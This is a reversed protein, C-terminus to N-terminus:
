LLQKPQPADDERHFQELPARVHFRDRADAARFGHMRQILHDALGRAEPPGDADGALVEDARLAARHDTEAAGLRILPLGARVHFANPEFREIIGACVLVRHMTNGISAVFSKGDARERAALEAIRVDGQEIGRGARHDIEDVAQLPSAVLAEIPADDAFDAQALEQPRASEVLSGLREM